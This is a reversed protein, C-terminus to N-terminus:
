KSLHVFFSQSHLRFIVAFAIVSHDHYHRWLNIPLMM